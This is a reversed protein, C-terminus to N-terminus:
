FINSWERSAEKRKIDYKRGRELQCNRCWEHLGDSNGFRKNFESLPKETKCHGCKKTLSRSVETKETKKEKKIM